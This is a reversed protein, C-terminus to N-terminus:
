LDSFSLSIAGSEHLAARVRPDVLAALEAEHAYDPMHRDLEPCRRTAPHFYIESDGEPLERLLGLVLEQRMRGSDNLGFVYRNYKMGARRVRLRVLAMWPALLLWPLFRALPQGRAARWSVLPPEYPLRVARLGYERGVKLILGLVTPHVHMHMHTNAHDLALGTARFAEFQAHIEAELQRRVRPLFFFRVGAAWQATHFEGGADVLDPVARPDLVPRGELLVVHLGVRLAPLRRAREVADRSAAAGIMLSAATLVGERHAREIGENVPVALGFDDGTFIVRKM